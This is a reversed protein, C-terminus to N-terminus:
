FSSGSALTYSDNMHDTDDDTVEASNYPETMMIMLIIMMIMMQIMMQIMRYGHLVQSVYGYSVHYLYTVM